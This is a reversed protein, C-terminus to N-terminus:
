GALPTAMKFNNRGSNKAAYLARDASKILQEAKSGDLPYVSVGISTTINIEHKELRVPLALSAIIKGAIAALDDVCNIGEFILVFEDGGLRAATDEERLCDTLRQAVTQLLHDGAPHGLTDNIQKFRDLDLMMVGVMKDNRSAHAIAHILRDNFLIRNPLSTLADHYALFHMQEEAAKRHTIDSFVAVYNCVQGADDKVTNITMWVAIIEGNRKRNWIEGQWHGTAALTQQMAAFFAPEHKGSALLSPDKGIVEHAMFGTIQSFAPNVSEIVNDADTVMIGEYTSEFAKSALRQHQHSIALSEEREKLTDRLERSYNREISALIDAFAVLGLLEGSDGTVGLHRIHRNIFLKRARYLTVTAPVSILPRSALEGVTELAKGNSILRVVDRETLIGHEGDPYCVIVADFRQTKMDSVAVELPTECPIQPHRRSLSAGLAQLYVNDGGQTLVVDSQTVMGCPAGDEGVVLFHRLKEEQFRLAAENLGAKFHITKVPSMMFQSIPAQFHHEQSVDLGLADHETWIGVIQEAEKVLISSCRAEVMQQAADALPTDPSCILIDPHIIHEISLDPITM